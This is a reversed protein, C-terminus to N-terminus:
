KSAKGSAYPPQINPDGAGLPKAATTMVALDICFDDGESVDGHLLRIRVHVHCDVARGRPDSPKECLLQIPNAIHANASVVQASRLRLSNWIPLENMWRM